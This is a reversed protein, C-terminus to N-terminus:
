KSRGLLLALSSGGPLGRLGKRLAQDVNLWKEGFSREIVQPSCRCTPWRGTRQCHAAAWKLIQRVTLRPLMGVNRVGRRKALLQALSSGGSFGRLGNMLAQHISLWNEGITGPIAERYNKQRPWRGTRDHFADAWALIQKVSLRPLNGISRVGRHVFLLHALSSGGPLGRLGRRLADDVHLWTDGFSADAIAGPTKRRPWKGARARFSDAWALIRSESLRPLGKTNRVGRYEALLRPLSGGGPLGRNGRKLAHNIASWKEGLSGPIVNPAIRAQPWRGTRRHFADAWALVQAVSLEPKRWAPRRKNRRKRM